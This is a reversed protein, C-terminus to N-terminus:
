PENHVSPYVKCLLGQVRVRIWLIGCICSLRILGGEFAQYFFIPEPKKCFFLEQFGSDVGFAQELQSLFM